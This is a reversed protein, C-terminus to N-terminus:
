YIAMGMFLLIFFPIIASCLDGVRRVGGGGALMVAVFLGAITWLRDIGFNNSISTSVVNFMLVEVGYVCLLLCVLRPVWKGKFARQLFFMPGGDYGGGARPRRYRVGLYVESYKLLMGLSATIWIWLLAGPGGIQVATCVAVINGIGICGGVSAFFAKVPHVGDADSHDALLMHWFNRGVACGKRVQFARSRVTLYVGLLVLAPVGCYTWLVDDMSDLVRVIQDLM